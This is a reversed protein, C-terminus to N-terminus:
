CPLGLCLSRWEAQLSIRRMWASHRDSHRPSGHLASLVTLAGVAVQEDVGSRTTLCVQTAHSGPIISPTRRAPDVRGGNGPIQPSLYAAANNPLTYTQLHKRRWWRRLLLGIHRCLSAKLLLFAVEQRRAHGICVRHQVEDGTHVGVTGGQDPKGILEHDQATAIARRRM